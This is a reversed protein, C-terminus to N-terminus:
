AAQCDGQLTVVAGCLAGEDNRWARGTPLLLVIVTTGILISGSPVM